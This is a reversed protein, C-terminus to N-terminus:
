IPLFRVMINIVIYSVINVLFVLGVRHLLKKERLCILFAFMEFMFICSSAFILENYASYTLSGLTIAFFGNIWINLTTYISASIALFITWSRKKRFGFLWFIASQFLLILFLRLSVLSVSRYISKGSVLTQKEINLTMVKNPLMQSKDVKLEFVDSGSKVIIKADNLDSNQATVFKTNDFYYLIYNSEWAIKSPKIIYDSESEVSISLDKTSGEVIIKILPLPFSPKTAFCIQAFVFLVAM